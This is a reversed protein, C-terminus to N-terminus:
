KYAPKNPPRSDPYLDITHVDQLGRDPPLEKPLEAPLVDEFEKLFEKLQDRIEEPCELLHQLSGEPLDQAEFIQSTLWTLPTFGQAVQGRVIDQYTSGEVPKDAVTVKSMLVNPADAILQFIKPADQTKQIKFINQIFLTGPQKIIHAFIVPDSIHFVNQILVQSRVSGKSWNYTFTTRQYMREYPERGQNTNIHLRNRIAALKPEEKSVECEIINDVFQDIKAGHTDYFEQLVEKQVETVKEQPVPKNCPKGSPSAM